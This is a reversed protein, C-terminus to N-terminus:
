GPPAHTPVDDYQRPVWTRQRRLVHGSLGIVCREVDIYRLLYDGLGEMLYTRDVNFRLIRYRADSGKIRQRDEERFVDGVRLRQGHEDPEGFVVGLRGRPGTSEYYFGLNRLDVPGMWRDRGRRVWMIPGDFCVAHYRSGRAILYIVGLVALVLAVWAPDVDSGTLLGGVILALFGAGLVVALWRSQRRPYPISVAADTAAAPVATADHGTARRLTEHAVPKCWRVSMRLLRDLEGVERAREILEVAAPNDPHEDIGAVAIWGLPHDGDLKTPTAGAVTALRDAIPWGFKSDVAGGVIVRNGRESATGALEVTDHATVWMWGSVTWVSIMGDADLDVIVDGHVSNPLPQPSNSM